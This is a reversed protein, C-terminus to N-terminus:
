GAARWGGACLADGLDACPLTSGVFARKLGSLRNKLNRVLQMKASQNKRRCAGRCRILPAVRLHWNMIGVIGHGIAGVLIFLSVKFASQRGVCVIADAIATRWLVAPKLWPLAAIETSAGNPDLRERVNDAFDNPLLNRYSFVTTRSANGPQFRDQQAGRALRGAAVRGREAQQQLERLTVALAGLGANLPFRCRGFIKCDKAAVKRIERADWGLREAKFRIRVDFTSESPRTKRARRRRFKSAKTSFDKEVSAGPCANMGAHCRRAIPHCSSRTRRPSIRRRIMLMGGRDKFDIMVETAKGAKKSPCSGVCLIM